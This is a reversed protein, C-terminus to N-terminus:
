LATSARKIKWDCYDLYQRGLPDVILVANRRNTWSAFDAEASFWGCMTFRFAAANGGWELDGQSHVANEVM